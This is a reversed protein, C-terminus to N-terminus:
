YSLLYVWTTIGCLLFKILYETLITVPYYLVFITSYIDAILTVIITIILCTFIMNELSNIKKKRFYELLILSLYLFAAIQLYTNM